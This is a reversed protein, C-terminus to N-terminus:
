DDSKKTVRKRTNIRKRMADSVPLLNDQDSRDLWETALDYDGLMYCAVAINYEACSRKYLDNTSLQAMWIDMAGKWDYNEARLLADYWKENEYYVISYQEHKWQSKFTEAIVEGTNNAEKLLDDSAVNVVDNGIFSFVKEDKNMADFCYLKINFKFTNEGVGQVGVKDFVFVVDCGTDMLLNILTDKQSYSGGRDQLSYVGVSGEGTGYDKELEVAFGEAMSSNFTDGTENGDTVYVVSVVKGFLDIGSKSPYRMEVQVAHRSPGCASVLLSCLFLLAYIRKMSNFKLLKRLLTMSM